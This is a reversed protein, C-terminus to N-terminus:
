IPERKAKPPFHPFGPLMAPAANAGRGLLGGLAALGIGGAARQLFTRRTVEQRARNELSFFYPDNCNM